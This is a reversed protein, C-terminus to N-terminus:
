KPKGSIESQSWDDFIEYSATFLDSRIMYRSATEIGIPQLIPEIYIPHFNQSRTNNMKDLWLNRLANQTAVMVVPERAFLGSPEWLFYHYHLHRDSNVGLCGRFAFAAEASRSKLVTRNLQTMLKQLEIRYQAAKTEESRCTNLVDKMAKVRHTLKTQKKLIELAAKRDKAKSIGEPFTELLSAKVTKLETRKLWSLSLDVHATVWLAPTPISSLFQGWNIAQALLRKDQPVTRIEEAVFLSLQENTRTPALQTPLNM